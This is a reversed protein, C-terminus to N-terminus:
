SLTKRTNNEIDMLLRVIQGGAIVFVGVLAMSVAFMFVFVGGPGTRAQAGIIGILVGFAIVLGGIMANFKVISNSAWYKNM